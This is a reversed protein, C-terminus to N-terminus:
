IIGVLSLGFLINLIMLTITIRGSWRHAARIKAKNKKVKFQALGLSPTIIAFTIAFLGLLHHPISFHEGSSMSVMIFGMILGLVAFASGIPAIRKHRKFWWITDKYFRAIIMGTLMLLFGLIMFTAHIIWFSPIEVESYTGDAFNIYGMGREVHESGFDDDPGLAWIFMVDKTLPISKDNDDGTSLLRKFEIVTTKGDQKGGYCLIDSTGGLDTDPPHPGTPGTAYADKANIIGSGTVWGFIMDAGKMRNEPEIGIAVWGNTKGEMALLISDTQVRWHLKLKGGKFIATYEYEGPDIVGNLTAPCIGHTNEFEKITFRLRANGDSFGNKESIIDITETLDRNIDPATYIFSYQGEAIIQYELVAGLKVKINLTVGDLSQNDFSTSVLFEQLDNENISSIQPTINVMIKDAASKKVTTTRNISGTTTSIATVRLVDKEEADVQYYYTFKSTTPQSTYNERQYLTDNKYIEVTEIYHSELDGVDHTFTVNLEQNLYDFDLEMGLPAHAYTVNPGTLFFLLLIFLVEFGIKIKKQFQKKEYSM